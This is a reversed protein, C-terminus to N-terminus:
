EDPSGVARRLLDVYLVAAARPSVADPGNARQVFWHDSTLAWNRAVAAVLDLPLDARIAGLERGLRAADEYFSTLTALVEHDELLAALAPETQMCRMVASARPNRLIFENGEISMQLVFNWFEPATTPRPHQDFGGFFEAYCEVVVTLFLDRKSEFYYYASGKGIGLRELLKNYSTGEFGSRAFEEAAIDLIERRRELPLQAFRRGAM